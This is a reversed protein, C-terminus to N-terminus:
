CSGLTKDHLMDEGNREIGSLCGLVEEVSSQLEPDDTELLAILKEKAGAEVVMQAYKELLAGDEDEIMDQLNLVAELQVDTQNQCYAPGLQMVLGNLGGLEVFMRRYEESEMCINRLTTATAARMGAVEADMYKMLKPMAGADFAAVANMTCEATLFSLAVVATQVRDEDESSLFEVLKPIAQAERIAEKQVGQALMALRTGALAGVTTPNKAWPHMQESCEISQFSDLLEVLSKIDNSAVAKDFKEADTGRSSKDLAIPVTQDGFRTPSRSPNRTPASPGEQNPVTPRACCCFMYM